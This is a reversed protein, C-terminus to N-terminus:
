SDASDDDPDDDDSAPSGDEGDREDESSGARSESDDATGIESDRSEADDADSTDSADLERVELHASGDELLDIEVELKGNEIRAHTDDVDTVTWGTPAAVQAIDGDDVTITAQTGDPLDVTLTDLTDDAAESADSPNDDLVEALPAAQEDADDRATSAELRKWLPHDAGLEALALRASEVLSSDSMGQDELAEIEEIRHRAILDTDFLVLVKESAQKVSYLPDGPLTGESAAALGAPAIVAAAVISAVIQRRRPRAADISVVESESLESLAAAMAELHRAQARDSIEVAVSAARMRQTLQEDNM